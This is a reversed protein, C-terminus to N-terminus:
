SFPSVVRYLYISKVLAAECASAPELPFTDGMPGFYYFRPFDRTRSKGIRFDRGAFILPHIPTTM